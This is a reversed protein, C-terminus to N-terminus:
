AELYRLVVTAIERALRGDALREPHHLTAAHTLAEILQVVVFAALELNKPRLERRHAELYDRVLKALHAEVQHVRELRGIRPVQEILIAHLRPDVAHARLMLDVLRGVAAALPARAVAEMGDTLVRSMREMHRDALAAVLAEKSPFYQYLSGISVGAADAIRNTSARDFGDRQLVRATATLIADLTARSREQSPQKRPATRPRPM